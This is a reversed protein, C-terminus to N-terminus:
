WSFAVVVVPNLAMRIASCVAVAYDGRILLKINAPFTTVTGFLFVEGALFRCTPKHTKVTLTSRSYFFKYHAIIRLFFDVFM